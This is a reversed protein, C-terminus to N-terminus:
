ISEFTETAQMDSELIFTTDIERQVYSLM